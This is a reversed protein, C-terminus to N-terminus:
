NLSKGWALHLFIYGIWVGLLNLLLDDIDFSGVRLLMQMSELLLIWLAMHLTLGFMSNLRQKLLPLLLGFPIFVAVNGLLNVLRGSFPVGNDLDFYLKITRLPELNYQLPGDPHVVRGFGIFMWYVVAACYLMLLMWAWIRRPKPQLKGRVSRNGPKQTKRPSSIAKM